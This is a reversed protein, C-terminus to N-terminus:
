AESRSRAEDLAEDSSFTEVEDNRYAELRREVEDRWAEETQPDQELSAILREALRAREDRPRALIAAELDGPASAMAIEARYDTCM